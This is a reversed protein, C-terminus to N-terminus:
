RSTLYQNVYCPSSAQSALNCASKGDVFLKALCPSLVTTMRCSTKSQICMPGALRKPTYYGQGQSSLREHEQTAGETLHGNWRAHHQRWTNGIRGSIRATWHPELHLMIFVGLMGVSVRGKEEVYAGFRGFYCPIFIFYSGRTCHVCIQYYMIM